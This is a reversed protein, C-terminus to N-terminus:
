SVVTAGELESLLLDLLGNRYNAASAKYTAWRCSHADVDTLTAAEVAATRRRPRGKMTAAKPACDIGGRGFRKRYRERLDADRAIASTVCYNNCLLGFM